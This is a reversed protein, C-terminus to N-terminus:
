GKYPRNHRVKIDRAVKQLDCLRKKFYGTLAVPMREKYKDVIALIEDVGIAIKCADEVTMVEDSVIGM